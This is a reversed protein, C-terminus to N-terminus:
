RWFHMRPTRSSRPRRSMSSSDRGPLRRMCRSCRMSPTPIPMRFAVSSSGHRSERFRRRRTGQRLFEPNTFTRSTPLGADLVAPRTGRVPLTSRIVVVDSRGSVRLSSPWCRTSRDSTASVTTASRRVSACSSSAPGTRRPMTSRCGARQWRPTSAKRSGPKTSRSGVPACRPLDGRRRRWSGSTAARARRTRRGDRPGRLRCRHRHGHADDGADTSPLLRSEASVAPPHPRGGLAGARRQVSGRHADRLVPDLAEAM